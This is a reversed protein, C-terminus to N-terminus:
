PKANKKVRHSKFYISLNLSLIKRKSTLIKLVNEILQVRYITSKNKILIRGQFHNIALM